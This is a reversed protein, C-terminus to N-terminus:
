FISKVLNYDRRIFNTIYHKNIKRQKFEMTKLNLYGNNFHIEDFYGDLVIKDDRLASILQPMYKIVSTNQFISSWVKPFKDRIRESDDESLKKYSVELLLTTYKLLIDEIDTSSSYSINPQIVYIERNKIFCYKTLKSKVINAIENPFISEIISRIEKFNLLNSKEFEM